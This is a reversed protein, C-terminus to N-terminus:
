AGIAVRDHEYVPGLGGCVSPIGHRAGGDGVLTVV